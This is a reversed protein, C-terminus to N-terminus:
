MRTYLWVANADSSRLERGHLGCSRVISDCYERSVMGTHYEILVVRCRSLLGRYNEIFQKESGEIDIKLLDVVEADALEQDLNIFPVTSAIRLLRRYGTPKHTSNAWHFWGQYLRGLGDKQGVLGYIARVSRGDSGLGACVRQLRKFV